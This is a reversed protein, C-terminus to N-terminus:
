DCLNQGSEQHYLNVTSSMGFGAGTITLKAGGASGSSPSISVLKPTLSISSIGSAGNPTGAETYFAVSDSSSDLMDTVTFVAQTGSATDSQQTYGDIVLQQTLPDSDLGSGTVTIQIVNNTTDFSSSIATVTATPEIYDFM